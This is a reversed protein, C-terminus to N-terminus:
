HPPMFHVSPDVQFPEQVPVVEAKVLQLEIRGGNVTAYTWRVFGYAPHYLTELSSAGVPSTAHAQTVWCTLRGLPTAITQQGTICYTSRVPIEGQWTAWAPNSWHSGVALTWSWHRGTEAPLRIYPFPSFELIAYPGQRPPHSWLVTDREVVGASFGPLSPDSTLQGGYAFGVKIQTTVTDYQGPKYEGYSTLVLTDLQPHAGGRASTRIRYTLQRGKRFIPEPLATATPQPHCGAGGLLVGALSLRRGLSGPAALLQSFSPFAM